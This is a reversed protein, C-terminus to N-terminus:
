RSRVAEIPCWTTSAPEFKYPHLHFIGCMSIMREVVVFPRQIGLWRRSSGVGFSPLGAIHGYEVCELYM